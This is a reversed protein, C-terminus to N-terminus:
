KVKSITVTPLGQKTTVYEDIEDLHDKAKTDWLKTETKTVKDYLEENEEQLRALEPKTCSVTLKRGIKIQFGHLIINETGDEGHHLSDAIAHRLEAERATIIKKQEALTELEERATEIKKKSPKYQKENNM